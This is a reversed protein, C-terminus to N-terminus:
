RRLCHGPDVTMRAADRPQDISHAFVCQDGSVCPLRSTYGWVDDVFNGSVQPEARHGSSPNILGLVAFYPLGDLGQKLQMILQLGHTSTLFFRRCSKYSRPLCSSYIQHRVSIRTPGTRRRIGQPSLPVSRVAVPQPVAALQPLTAIWAHRRPWAFRIEAWVKGNTRSALAQRCAKKDSIHNTGLNWQSLPIGRPPIARQARVDRTERARPKRSGHKTPASPAFAVISPSRM